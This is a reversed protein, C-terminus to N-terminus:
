VTIEAISRPASVATEPTPYTQLFILDELGEKSHPVRRSGVRCGAEDLVVVDHHQDAWDLGVYWM